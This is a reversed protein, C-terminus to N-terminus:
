CDYINLLGESQRRFRKYTWDYQSPYQRICDELTQNMATAAELLDAHHIEPRVPLIHLHFGQGPQLRELFLFYTPAQTKYALRAPLGITWASLGFFPVFLGGTAGGDHDCAMGVVGGLKLARFLAMVGVKDTPVFHGGFHDRKNKTLQEILGKQPKYLWTGSYKPSVYANMLYFAGMHAGLLIVGKQKNFDEILAAEGSICKFQSLLKSHPKTWIAPAELIEKAKEKLVQRTLVDRELVTKEPFCAQVNLEASRRLKSHSCYLFWGM